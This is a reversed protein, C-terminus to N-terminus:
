EIVACWGANQACKISSINWDDIYCIVESMNIKKCINFLALHMYKGIGKNRYEKNIYLNQCIGTDDVWYWGRIMGGPNFIILRWNNKLRNEADNLNWMGDWKLEENFTYIEESLENLNFTNSDVESISYPIRTTNYNELNIKFKV